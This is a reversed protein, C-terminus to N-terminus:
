EASTILEVSLPESAVQYCERAYVLVTYETGPTLDTLVIKVPQNLREPETDIHYPAAVEVTELVEGTAKAVIEAYYSQVLDSFGEPAEVTAAPVTITASDAAVDTVELAAGEPFVPAFAEEARDEYDYPRTKKDMADFTWPMGIMKAAEVNTKAVGDEYTLEMDTFSYRELTVQSGDVVMYLGQQTQHEDGNIDLQSFDGLFGYHLTGCSVVTCQPDRKASSQWIAREDTIPLHTHGTFVVCNYSRMLTDQVPIEYGGYNSYGGIVTGAAPVHQAFFFPKDPSAEKAYELLKQVETGAEKTYHVGVFQYGKIEKIWAEEFESGLEDFWFEELVLGEDHNGYIFMPEVYEGTLDNISNPFVELWVDQIDMIGTQSYTDLLDGTILIGDVGKEKYFRLAKELRELPGYVPITNSHTDSLIGIRLLNTTVVPQEEKEECGAFCALLSLLMVVALIVSIIKKM